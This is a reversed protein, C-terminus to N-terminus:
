KIFSIGHFVDFFLCTLVLINLALSVACYYLTQRTYTPKMGPVLFFFFNLFFYGIPDHVHYQM